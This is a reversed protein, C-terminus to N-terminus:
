APMLWGAMKRVKLRARHLRSRVTGERLALTRAAEAYTMGRADCLTLVQRECARLRALARRVLVTTEARELRLLLDEDAGALTDRLGTGERGQCDLSLGARREMRKRSDRFANRLISLLWSHVSKMSDHQKRARLARYCAEQVLENAEDADRCLGLAFNRAKLNSGDLYGKLAEAVADPKAARGKNGNRGVIKCTKKM